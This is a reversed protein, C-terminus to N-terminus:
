GGDSKQERLEQAVVLPVLAAVLQPCETLAVRVQENDTDAIDKDENERSISWVAYAIRAASWTQWLLDEHHREEFHIYTSM